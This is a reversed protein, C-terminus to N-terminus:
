IAQFKVFEALNRWWTRRSEYAHWHPVNINPLPYTPVSMSFVAPFTKWHVTAMNEKSRTTTRIEDLDFEYLHCDRACEVFARATTMSPSEVTLIWTGQENVTSSDTCYREWDPARELEWLNGGTATLAYFVRDDHGATYSRIIRNGALKEIRERLVNTELAHSYLLNHWSAYNEKLLSEFTDSSDFLVDLILVEEDTLNTKCTRKLPSETNM